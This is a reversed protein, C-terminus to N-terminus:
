QMGDCLITLEFFWQEFAYIHCLRFTSGQVHLSYDSGTIVAPVSLGCNAALRPAKSKWAGALMNCVEGLGDKVVDDVHSFETGVLRKAIQM